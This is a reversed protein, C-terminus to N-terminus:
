SHKGWTAQGAKQVSGFIAVDDAKREGSGRYWSVLLDGTPLEAVGPAHNHQKHLPFVLESRFTPEAAPVVATAMVVALCACVKVRFANSLRMM